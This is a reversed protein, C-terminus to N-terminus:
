FIVYNLRLKMNEIKLVSRWSLKRNKYDIPPLHSTICPARNVKKKFDEEKMFAAIFNVGCIAARVEQNMIVDNSDDNRRLADSGSLTKVDDDQNFGVHCM